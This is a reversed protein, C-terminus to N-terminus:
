HHLYLVLGTFADHLFHAVMVSRLNGRRVAVLAYWAGLGSIQVVAAGGEYFHLCGFLLTSVGVAVVLSGSWRLLQRLLYGRFVFEECIGASLSVVVWLALEAATHPRLAQLVATHDRPHFPRVIIGFVLMVALGGLFVAFGQGINGAIGRASLGGLVGSIFERRHYLGAITSGVLLCEVIITSTYAMARPTAASPLYLRMLGYAAWLALVVLLFVTHPWPAVAEPQTRTEM